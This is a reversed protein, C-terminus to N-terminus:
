EGWLRYAAYTRYARVFDEHSEHLFLGEPDFGREAGFYRALLEEMAPASLSYYSGGDRGTVEAGPATVFSLGTSQGDKRTGWLASVESLSLDTEICPLLASALRMLSGDTAMVRKALASLFLKQADLRDLDGRGYGSRYRVFGEASKGDLTQRGKKLHISLGQAPDDYDMDEPVDLEVGGLADVARRFADSSLRVYADVSIGFADGFRKALTEMGIAAPAGNIKRYSESGGRFYTDRPLQLVTIEGKPPDYSLLMMVDSLGSSPDKAAVLLCFPREGEAYSPSLPPDAPAEEVRSRSAGLALILGLTLSLSLVLAFIKLTNPSIRSLM